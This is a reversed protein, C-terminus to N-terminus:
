YLQRNSYRDSDYTRLRRPRYYDVTFYFYRPLLSLADLVRVVAFSRDGVAYYYYRPYYYRISYYYLPRRYNSYYNVFPPPIVPQHRNLSRCNVYYNLRQL